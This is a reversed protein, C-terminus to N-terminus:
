ELIPYCFKASSARTYPLPELTGAACGWGSIGLTGGGGGAWSNTDENALTRLLPLIDILCRYCRNMKGLIKIAATRIVPTETIPSDKRVDNNVNKRMLM